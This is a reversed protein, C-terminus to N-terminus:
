RGNGLTITLNIGTYTKEFNLNNFLGIGFGIENAPRFLLQVETQLGATYYKEYNIVAARKKGLVFSPGTFANLQFWESQFRKGISVDITNFTYGDDGFGGFFGARYMYGAKYFYDGLSFTYNGNVSVTTNIAGVGLTLWYKYSSDNQQAPTTLTLLFIASVLLLTKM